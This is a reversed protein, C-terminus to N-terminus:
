ERSGPAVDSVWIYYVKSVLSYGVLRGFLAREVLKNRLIGNVEFSCHCSYVRLLSVDPLVGFFLEYLTKDGQNPLRNRLYCASLFAYPWFSKALRSELHISRAINQLVGNYREVTANQQATYVMLLEHVAGVSKL